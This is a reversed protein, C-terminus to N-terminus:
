RRRRLVAVSGGLLIMLSSPEPVSGMQARVASAIGGGEVFSLDPLEDGLLQSASAAGLLAEISAPDAEGGAIQERVLAAQAELNSERLARGSFVEFFNQTNTAEFLPDTITALLDAFLNGEIDFPGVDWGTEVNNLEGARGASNFVERNSGRLDLEYFGFQDVEFRGTFVTQGQLVAETGAIDYNVAYSLPNGPNGIQIGAFITRDLRGGIGGQITVPGDLMLLFDGFDFTSNAQGQVFTRTLTVDAGAGLPNSGTPAQPQFGLIQAGRILDRGFGAEASIGCALTIGVAVAFVNRTGIGAVGFLQM